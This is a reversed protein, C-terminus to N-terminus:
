ISTSVFTAVDIIEFSFIELLRHSMDSKVLADLDLTSHKDFDFNIIQGKLQKQATLFPLWFKEDDDDDNEGAQAKRMKELGVRHLSGASWSGLGIERRRLKCTARGCILIPVPVFDGKKAVRM